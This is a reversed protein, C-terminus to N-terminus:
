PKKNYNVRTVVLNLYTHIGQDLQWSMKVKSPIKYGDFNKYEGVEIIWIKYDNNGYLRKTTITNIYGDKFEVFLTHLIDNHKVILKAHLNDYAEWQITESPLFNTPMMVSDVIFRLFQAKNNENGYNEVIPILDLFEVKASGVNNQYREIINMTKIRGQWIFSPEVM